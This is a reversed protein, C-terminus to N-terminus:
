MYMIRRKMMMGRHFSASTGVSPPISPPTLNKVRGPFSDRGSLRYDAM